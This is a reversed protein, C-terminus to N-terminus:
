TIVGEGHLAPWRWNTPQSQEAPAPDDRASRGRYGFMTQFVEFEDVGCPRIQRVALSNSIQVFLASPFVSTIAINLSDDREPRFAVLAPEKLSLFDNRVGANV